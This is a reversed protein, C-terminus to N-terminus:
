AETLRRCTHTLKHKYRDANLDHIYIYVCRRHINIYIYIYVINKYMCIPMWGIISVKFVVFNLKFRSRYPM